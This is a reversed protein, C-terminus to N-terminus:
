TQRYPQHLSDTSSLILPENGQKDGRILYLAASSVTVLFGALGGGALFGGIGLWACPLKSSVEQKNEVEPFKRADM